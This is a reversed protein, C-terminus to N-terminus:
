IIYEPDNINDLDITVKKCSNSIICSLLHSFTSGYLTHPNYNGIFVDNCAKGISLDIIANIERHNFITKDMIYYNYKNEILYDIVPGTPNASLIIIVSNEKAVIHKQILSVYKDILKNKFINHDMNNIRSFFEIADDENRMHLVNITSYSNKITEVVSTTTNNLFDTFAINNLIEKVLHQNNKAQQTLTNIYTSNYKNDINNFDIDVNKKVKGCFEDIEIHFVFRNVKYKIYVVKKTNPLPDGCITNLELNTNITFHKDKICYPKLLETVDIVSINRLGYEIKIVEFQIDEQSILLINYQKLYNNMYDLDLIEKIPCFIDSQNQLADKCFSSLFLIDFIYPNNNKSVIKDVIANVISYLQNTLGNKTKGVLVFDINIKM